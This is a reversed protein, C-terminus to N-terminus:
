LGIARWFRRWFGSEALAQTASQSRVASYALTEASSQAMREAEEAWIKRAQHIEEALALLEKERAPGIGHYEGLRRMTAAHLFQGVRYLGAERLAKRTFVHVGLVKLLDELSDGDAVRALIAEREEKSLETM